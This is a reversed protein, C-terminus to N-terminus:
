LITGGTTASWSVTGNQFAQTCTGGGSCSMAGIPWGLVGTAAGKGQYFTFMGGSVPFGGWRPTWYVGGGQFSQSQGVVGNGSYETVNGTPWGLVGAPGSASSYATLIAGTVLRTGAGPSVYITGGLYKQWTGGGNASETTLPGLPWALFGTVGGLSLYFQSVGGQNLVLQAGGAPTWYITGKQFVQSQGVVGRAVFETVNGTPWGLEGAPGSASSYAALIAGSVLRAGSGPSVFISGGQFSQSSGGGNASVSVSAGTPWGMFGTVGGVASFLTWAAGTVAMAGGSPTWYVTGKQFTQYQGVVGGITRETINGTPWGMGAPGGADVYAARVSGTVLRAGWTSTWYITANQFTQVLGGGSASDSSPSSTPWGVFGTEGGVSAYLAAIDGTLIMAGNAATWHVSGNTFSQKQGTVGNASLETVDGNPWGLSGTVGGWALHTSRIFGSVIRAGGRPSWYLDGGVFPQRLGKVGYATIETLAGTASGLWGTAGGQSQYLERLQDLGSATTPGFWNTYFVWFNRNGYSSCSDGTGGLNALAAANPQYPTYYYLGATAWNRIYVPASGCRASDPHFLVNSVQGVPYWRFGTSIRYVQFQWAAKFLQNALGLTTPACPATDPCAYGTARDLRSQSPSQHTILGQEKQLLVLLVKASISCSQQTKYIIAATSESASGAYGSCYADASRSVSPVRVVNLCLGNQCSGIMTDLFSQIEAQSMANGDYFLEDSII